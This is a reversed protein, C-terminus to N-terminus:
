WRACTRSRTRIERRDYFKTGGIIRYPMGARVFARRSSAARRTRGTSSRSTASACSSSTSSGTSRTCSSAPRTTSTRARPLPRHARRRDARDLPAEAPAGRQQRHGRERRRPHAPDVPLEPRARDGVGRPVGGRLADPEPLGGRPLQLGVPRRRRRGHRQPAGRHPAPGAGVPRPQHGPVRRRPRPAFRHRWRDLVDPHERFLRVVLLLLDDFDAASAEALRAPVRRLDRRDAERAPDAGEGEGGGARHAREEDGLDRAHLRRPPFRKPDLNMDRRVYDVLRVADSQDYISFSSRYGLLGAERRLIRACASHFTSVWMRHAVPGVLAGVREKM